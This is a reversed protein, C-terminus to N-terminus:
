KQEEGASASTDASTLEAQLLKELPACEWDDYGVEKAAARLLAWRQEPVVEGYAAWANKMAQSKPHYRTEVEGLRLDQGMPEALVVDTVLCLQDLDDRPSYCAFLPLLLVSGAFLRKV